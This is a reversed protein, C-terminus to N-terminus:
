SKKAEARARNAGAIVLSSIAAYADTWAQKVEPTWAPGSIEQLTALLCEGVWPYMKDEVGYGVHKGGISGLTSSLWSADEVHDMVAVIAEQLMKAQNAASNRGFLPKVQPYREFFIEYFRPTFQPQREVVLDLSKRLVPVNLGM